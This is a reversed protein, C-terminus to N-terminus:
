SWQLPVLIGACYKLIAATPKYKKFTSVDLSSAASLFDETSFNKKEATMTPVAIDVDKLEAVSVQGLWYCYLLTMPLKIELETECLDTTLWFVNTWEVLPM